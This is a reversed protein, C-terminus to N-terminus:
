GLRYGLTNRGMFMLVSVKMPRSLEMEYEWFGKLTPMEQM